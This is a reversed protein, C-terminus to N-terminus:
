AARRRRLGVCGLATGALLLSGPEPVVSLSVNDLLAGMSPTQVTNPPAAIFLRLYDYGTLDPMVFDVGAQSWQVNSWSGTMGSISLLDSRVGNDMLMPNNPDGMFMFNGLMYYVQLTSDMAMAGTPDTVDFFDYDFALHYSQGKVLATGPSGNGSAAITQSIFTNPQNYPAGPPGLWVFRSGSSARGADQVWTSRSNPTWSGVVTNWFLLDSANGSDVFSSTGDWNGAEFGGNNILNTAAHAALPLATLVFCALLRPLPMLSLQM